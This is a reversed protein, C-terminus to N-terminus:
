NGADHELPATLSDVLVRQSGGRTRITQLRGDRIRNYITRRSVGLLAAAHDLSVSRGIRSEVSGEPAQASLTM